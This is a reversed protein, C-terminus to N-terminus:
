CLFQLFVETPILSPDDFCFAFVIVVQGGGHGKKIIKKVTM